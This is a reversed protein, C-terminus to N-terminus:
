HHAIGILADGVTVSLSTLYYLVRGDFDSTITELIEGSVARIEGLIDGHRVEEELTFFPYWLGTAPAKPIWLDVVAIKNTDLVPVDSQTINLFNLVRYIGLTLQEVTNEAWLGNGSVEAIIGPLGVQEAADLTYGHGDTSVAHPLGFTKALAQAKANNRPFLTFPSLSEVLDGGHLDIYADFSPFVNQTLWFALRESKSGQEKGPFVRNLNKNDEPFVFISRQYFGNVNLIPLVFVSGSLHASDLNKLRLAAEISCFESGHVGATILLRPGPKNGIIHIFPLETDNGVNISGQYTGAKNNKLLENIRTM